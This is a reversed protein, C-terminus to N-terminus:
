FLRYYDSSSTKTCERFDKKNEYILTACAPCAYELVPRICASCYLLLETPSFGANRLRRLIFHLRVNARQVINNIHSKWKLDFDINLGLLKCMTVRQINTGNIEAPPMDSLHQSHQSSSSLSFVIEKTKKTSLM